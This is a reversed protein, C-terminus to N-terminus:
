EPFRCILHISADVNSLFDEGLGVRQEECWAYADDLDQEAEPAIVLEVAM